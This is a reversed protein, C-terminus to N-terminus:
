GMHREINRKDSPLLYVEKGRMQCARDGPRSAEASFANLGVGPSIGHVEAEEDRLQRVHLFCADVVVGHQGKFSALGAFEGRKPVADPSEESLNKKSRGDDAPAADSAIFCGRLHSRRVKARTL